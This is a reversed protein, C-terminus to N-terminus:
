AVPSLRGCAIAIRDQIQSGWGFSASPSGGGGPEGRRRWRRHAGGGTGGARGGGVEGRSSRRPTPSQASGSATKKRRYSCPPFFGVKSHIARTTPNKRAKSICIKRWRISKHSRRVSKIMRQRTFTPLLLDLRLLTIQAERNPTPAGSANTM